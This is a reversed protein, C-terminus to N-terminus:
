KMREKLADRLTKAQPEQRHTEPPAQRLRSNLAAEVAAKFDGAMREILSNLGDATAARFDVPELFSAPLGAEAAAKVAEIKLKYANLEAAAEKAQSEAYALREDAKMKALKDAEAKEEELQLRYAEVAKNKEANVIRNLEDRTFTKEPAPPTPQPEPAPAPTQNPQPALPLPAGEEGAFRRSLLSIDKRRHFSSNM